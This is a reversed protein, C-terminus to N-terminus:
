RAGARAQGRGAVARAQGLGPVARTLQQVVVVRVAAGLFSTNSGSQSVYRGVLAPIKVTYWLLVMVIFLNIIPGRNLFIQEKAPLMHQPDLLMWQGAHLVMAQLVPTALCGAYGRWWLRALGDTQPLAHCALALPAAATLVLLTSIRVIMSCATMAVLVTILLAIIAFLLAPVGSLDTAAAHVHTKIATFAGDPSHGPQSLAETLSNATDIAMGCLPQSFHASVFGVVLRPALDKVTYRSREDGGAIMVLIGATVFALVFVTDVIWVAQGTLARVQRQGTVDPTILLFGTLVGLVSDLGALIQKSVWSLLADFANLEFLWSM